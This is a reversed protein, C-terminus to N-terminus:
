PTPSEPDSFVEPHLYAALQRLGQDLRPTVRDFTGSPILYIRDNQVAPISTEQAWFTKAKAVQEPTVGEGASFVIVDPALAVARERQFNRIYGRNEASTIVNEGGAAKILFDITTGKGSATVRRDDWILGLVRVKKLGATRIRVQARAEDIRELIQHAESVRDLVVGIEAIALYGENFSASPVGFSPIDVAGLKKLVDRHIQGVTAIVLDPQLGMIKEYSPKLDGVQTVKRAEPPYYCYKTVGVVRDGLGLAFLVETAFPSLSVIRQSGAIAATTEPSPNETPKPAEGGDGCAVLGTGLCLIAIGTLWKM